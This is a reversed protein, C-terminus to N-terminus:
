VSFVVLDLFDGTFIDIPSGRRSCWSSGLSYMCSATRGKTTDHVVRWNVFIKSDPTIGFNERVIRGMSM